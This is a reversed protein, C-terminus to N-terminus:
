NRSFAKKEEVTCPDCSVRKLVFEHTLFNSLGKSFTLNYPNEVLFYSFMTM